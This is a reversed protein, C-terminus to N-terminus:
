KFLSTPVTPRVIVERYRAVVDFDTLQQLIRLQVMLPQVHHVTGVFILEEIEGRVHYGSVLVINTFNPNRRVMLVGTAADYSVVPEEVMDSPPKVALDHVLKLLVVLVSISICAAALLWRISIQQGLDVFMGAIGGVAGIAGIAVGMAGFSFFASQIKKLM